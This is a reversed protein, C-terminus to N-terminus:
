FAELLGRLATVLGTVCGVLAVVGTLTKEWRVYWPSLRATLKELVEVLNMLAAQRDRSDAAREYERAMMQLTRAMIADEAQRCRAVIQQIANAMTAGLGSPAQAGCLIADAQREADGRRSGILRRLLEATGVGLLAIFAGAGVVTWDPRAGSPAVGRERLTLLVPVLVVLAAVVAVGAGVAIVAVPKSRPTQRGAGTAPAPASRERASASRPGEVTLTIEALPPPEAPPPWTREAREVVPREGPAAAPPPAPARVAEPVPELAELLASGDRPRDAPRRELCAKVLRCLDRPAPALPEEDVPGGLVARAIAMLTDGAFPKRGALLEYLLVGFGWVDTAASQREARWQEPAMYAPTGSVEGAQTLGSERGLTGRVGLDVLRARAFDLRDGVRPVVVNSPKIDRHILGTAHLHALAGALARAVARVQEPALAGQRALVRKLSPGDIWEQVLYPRGDELAGADVAAALSPHQLRTLARYETTIQDASRDDPAVHAVKLVRQPGAVLDEVLWTSGAAGSGLRQGLRFRGALVAGPALPEAPGRTVKAAPVGPPGVPFPDREGGPPRPGHDPM